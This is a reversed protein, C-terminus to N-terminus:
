QRGSSVHKPWDRRSSTGLCWLFFMACFYNEASQTCPGCHTDRPVRSIAESGPGALYTAFLYLSQLTTLCLSWKHIRPAKKWDLGLDWNLRTRVSVTQWLASSIFFVIRNELNESIRVASIIGGEGLCLVLHSCFGWVPLVAILQMRSTAKTVPHESVTRLLSRALLCIHSFTSHPPPLRPKHDGAM